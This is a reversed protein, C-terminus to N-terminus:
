KSPASDGHSGHLIPYFRLITDQIRDDEILATLRQLKDEPLAELARTISEVLQPNGADAALVQHLLNRPSEGPWDEIRSLAQAPDHRAWVSFLNGIAVGDQALAEATGSELWPLLDADTSLWIGARDAFPDEDLTGCLLHWPIRDSAERLAAPSIVARSQLLTALTDYNCPPKRKSAIVANLAADPDNDAWCAMFNCRQSPFHEDIWALTAQADDQALRALIEDIQQTIRVHADWEDPDELEDLRTKFRALQARLEEPSMDAMPDPSAHDQESAIREREDAIRALEAGLDTVPKASTPPAAAKPGPHLTSAKQPSNILGSSSLVYGGLGLLPPLLWRLSPHM